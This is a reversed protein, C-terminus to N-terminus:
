SDLKTCTSHVYSVWSLTVYLADTVDDSMRSINNLNIEDIVMCIRYYNYGPVIVYYNHLTDLGFFSLVHICFWDKATNGLVDVMPLISVM